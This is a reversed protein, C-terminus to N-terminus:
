GEEPSHSLDWFFGPGKLRQWADHIERAMNEAETKNNVPSTTFYFVVYGEADVIAGNYSEM